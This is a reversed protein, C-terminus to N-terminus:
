APADIQTGPLLDRNKTEILETDALDNFTGGDDFGRGGGDQQSSTITGLGCREAPEIYRDVLALHSSPHMLPGDRLKKNIPSAVSHIQCRRPLQKHVPM